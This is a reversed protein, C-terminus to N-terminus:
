PKARFRKEQRCGGSLLVCLVTTCTGHVIHLAGLEVLECHQLQSHQHSLHQLHCAWSPM